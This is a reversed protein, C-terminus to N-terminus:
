ALGAALDPAPVEAVSIRRPRAGTSRRRVSRAAEEPATPRGCSWWRAGAGAALEAGARPGGAGDPRRSQGGPERERRRREEATHACRLLQHAAALALPRRGAATAWALRPEGGAVGARPEGVASSV